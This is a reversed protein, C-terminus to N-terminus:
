RGEKWATRSATTLATSVEPWARGATENWHSYHQATGIARQLYTEAESVQLSTAQGVTTLVHLGGAICLGEDTGMVWGTQAWGWTQLLRRTQELLASPRLPPMQDVLGWRVTWALRRARLYDARTPLAPLRPLAPAAPAPRIDIDPAIDPALAPAQHRTLVSM